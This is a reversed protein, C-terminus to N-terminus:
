VITTDRQRKKYQVFQSFCKFLVLTYFLWTVICRIVSFYFILDNRNQLNITLTAITQKSILLWRDIFWTAVGVVLKYNTSHNILCFKLHHFNELLFEKCYFQNTFINMYTSSHSFILAFHYKCKRFIYGNDVPGFTKFCETSCSLQVFESFLSINRLIQLQKSIKLFKFSDVTQSVNIDDKLNNGSLDLYTLSSSISQNLSLSHAM